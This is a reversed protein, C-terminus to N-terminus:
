LYYNRYIPYVDMIKIESISISINRSSGQLKKSLFQYIIQYNESQM